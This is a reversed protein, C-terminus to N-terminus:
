LASYSSYQVNGYPDSQLGRWLDTSQVMSIKMDSVTIRQAKRKAGGLGLTYLTHTIEFNHNNITHLAHMHLPPPAFHVRGTHNGFAANRSLRTATPKETCKRGWETHERFRRREGCKTRM